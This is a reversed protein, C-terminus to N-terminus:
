QGVVARYFRQPFSDSNTQTYSFPSANTILPTWSGVLLNPSTEVVYNSGSTGTVVFSFQNNAIAPSSLVAAGAPADAQASSVIGDIAFDVATSVGTDYIYWTGGSAGSYNVIRFTVNTGAGVNQLAPNSSLDIAGISAGSNITPYTVVAVDSFAGSGIQVQVVGNSPGTNSRRYDFKTIATISVRYGNKAAISCTAYDGATIASAASTADFGHGGWARATASQITLVGPGRTLGVINLQPANTSPATMGRRSVASNRAASCARIPGITTEPNSGTYKRIGPSETEPWTRIL